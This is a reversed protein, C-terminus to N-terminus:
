RPCRWRGGGSVTCSRCPVALLWRGQHTCQGHGGCDFQRLRHKPSEAGTGDGHLPELRSSARGRTESWSEGPVVVVGVDDVLVEDLLVALLEVLADEEEVVDVLVDDLEVVDFLEEVLLM